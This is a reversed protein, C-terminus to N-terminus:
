REQRRGDATLFATREVGRRPEGPLEEERDIRRLEYTTEPELISQRLAGLSHGPFSVSAFPCLNGTSVYEAPGGADRHSFPGVRLTWYYHGSGLPNAPFRVSLDYEGDLDQLPYIELDRTDTSLHETGLQAIRVGGDTDAFLDLAFRLRPLRRAARLRLHLELPEGHDFSSRRQGDAGAMYSDVLELPRAAVPGAAPASREHGRRALAELSELRRRQQAVLLDRYRGVVEGPASDIVIRGADLLIARACVDIVTEVSHTVILVTSGSTCVERIREACKAQFYADGAALAEDLMLIDPVEQLAVALALRARMGSSYFM